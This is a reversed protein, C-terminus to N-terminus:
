IAILSTSKVWGVNGNSIKIETWDDDQQNVFVKAGEHLIFLKTGKENPSSNVTVASSIIIAENSFKSLNYKNKAVFFLAISLILFVSGIWFGIQKVVKISFSIYVVYLILSVVLSFICLLAWSKETTLNVFSDKWETIFLQPAADINDDIRQNALKLNVAIDESSPDLKKAREYNLIAHAIDKLKFYANGLNFYLEPAALGKNIVSEYLLAAKEYNAKAYEANASDITNKNEDAKAFFVIFVLLLTLAYKAWAILNGVKIVSSNNSKM